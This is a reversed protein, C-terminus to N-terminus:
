KYKTTHYKINCASHLQEKIAYTNDLLWRCMRKIDRIKGAKYNEYMSNTYFFKRLFNMGLMPFEHLMLSLFYFPYHFKVLNHQVILLDAIVVKEVFASDLNSSLSSLGLSPVRMGKYFGVTYNPMSLLLIRKKMLIRNLLFNGTHCKKSLKKTIIKQITNHIRSLFKCNICHKALQCFPKAQKTIIRKIFILDFGYCQLTNGLALLSDYYGPIMIKQFVGKGNRNNEQM